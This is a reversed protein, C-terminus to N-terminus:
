SGDPAEGVEVDLSGAIDVPDGDAYESGLTVDIEARVRDGAECGEATIEVSGASGETGSANEVGEEGPHAFLVFGDRDDPLDLVAGDTVAAIDAELLFGLEGPMGLGPSQVRVLTVGEDSDSLYCFATLDEIPRVTGDRTTLELNSTGGEAPPATPTRSAGPESPDGSPTPTGPTGTATASTTSSTGATTADNSAGDGAGDGDDDSGCAALPLALLTIATIAALSRSRTRM